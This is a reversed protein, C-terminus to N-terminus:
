GTIVILVTCIPQFSKVVAIIIIYFICVIILTPNCPLIIFAASIYGIVVIVVASQRPDVIGLGVGGGGVVVVEGVPPHLIHLFATGAGMRHAILVIIDIVQRCQHLGDASHLTLGGIGVVTIVAGSGDDGSVTGQIIDVIIEASYGGQGGLM